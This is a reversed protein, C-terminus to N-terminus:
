RLVMVRYFRNGTTIIDRKSAVSDTATIDGPLDTWNTPVLDPNYQVRYVGNSVATWRVVLEGAGGSALPLMQPALSLITLTGTNFTIAYNGSTLGSPTILYGGVSEGSARTFSLTGGLVSSTEGNVFGAYTATFAPDAAGYAKSKDDATVSLVAKTITLTGTNFTITYNGSTLGDPTILYGGVSEGPARTFSLTGGLVSSNEGNVFGAYTATFPPEAAGYTKSKNDATVSLAAKTITLTGTNFTITYNGSTLGDPTILYGGVSEGPARTFSL